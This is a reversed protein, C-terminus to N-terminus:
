LDETCGCRTIRAHMKTEIADTVQQKSAAAADERDEILMLIQLDRAACGRTFPGANTAGITANLLVVTLTAHALHNFLKTSM